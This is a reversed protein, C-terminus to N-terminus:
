EESWLEANVKDIEGHDLALGNEDYIIGCEALTRHGSEGEWKSIYPNYKCKKPKSYIDDEIETYIRCDSCISRFECDSCIKIQDKNILGLKQFEDSLVIDKLDEENILGFSQKSSPCNKINGHVDIGLKKYLCNNYNKTLTYHPMNLCFYLSSIKGCSTCDTIKEETAIIWDIKKLNIPLVNPCSHPIIEKFRGNSNKLSVFFDFNKVLTDFPITIDTAEITSKSIRNFLKELIIVDFDSYFRLSLNRCGLSELQNFSHILDYNSFQEDWDILAHEILSPSVYKLDFAPFLLLDEKPISVIINKDKLLTYFDEHQTKLESFARKELLDAIYHPIAWWEFLLLDALLTRNYGRTMICNTALTDVM